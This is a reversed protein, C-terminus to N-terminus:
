RAGDLRDEERPSLLEKSKHIEGDPNQGFSHLRLPEVEAYIQLLAAAGADVIM